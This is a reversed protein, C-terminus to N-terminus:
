FRSYVVLGFQHLHVSVSNVGNGRGSLVDFQTIPGIIEEADNKVM